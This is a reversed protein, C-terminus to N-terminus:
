TSVSGVAGHACRHRRHPAQYCQECDSRDRAATAAHDAALARVRARRPVTRPSAREPVEPPLPDRGLGGCRRQRETVLLEDDVRLLLQRSAAHLLTAQRVGRDAQVRVLWQAADPVDRGRHQALLAVALGQRGVERVRFEHDLRLVQEVARRVPVQDRREAAPVLLPPELGHGARVPGRPDLQRQGVARGRRVRPPRAVGLRDRLQEPRQLVEDVVQRTTREHAPRGDLREVAVGTVLARV